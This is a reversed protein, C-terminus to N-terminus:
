LLERRDKANAAEFMSCTKGNHCDLYPCVLSHKDLNYTDFGTKCNPCLQETKEINKM